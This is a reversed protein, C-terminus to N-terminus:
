YTGSCKTEDQCTVVVSEIEALIVESKLISFHNSDPFRKHTFPAKQRKGFMLCTELSQVNVVGDGDSYSLESKLGTVKNYIYSQTTPFGIGYLCHFTVNPPKFKHNIANIDELMEWSETMSFDELLQQYDNATYITKNDNTYVQLLTQNHFAVAKPFLWFLSPWTQAISSLFESIQPIAISYGLLELKSLVAAGLAQSSGAWPASLSIFAHIYKNKWKQTVRKNLFYLSVPGGLSHAVITM